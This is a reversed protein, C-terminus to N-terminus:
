EQDGGGFEPFLEFLGGESGGTLRWVPSMMGNVRLTRM